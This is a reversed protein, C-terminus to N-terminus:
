QNSNNRIVLLVVWHTVPLRTPKWHDCWTDNLLRVILYVPNWHCCLWQLGGPSKGQFYPPEGKFVQKALHSSHRSAHRCGAIEESFSKKECKNGRPEKASNVTIIADTFFFFFCRSIVSFHDAIGWNWWNLQQLVPSIIYWSICVLLKNGSGRCSYNIWLSLPRVLTSQHKQLIHQLHIAWAYVTGEALILLSQTKVHLFLASCHGDGLRLTSNMESLQAKNLCAEEGAIQWQLCYLVAMKRAALAVSCSATM